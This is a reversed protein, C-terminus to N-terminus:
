TRVEANHSAISHGEPTLRWWVIPYVPDSTDIEAAILGDRALARLVTGPQSTFGGLAESGAASVKSLARLVRRMDNALASM